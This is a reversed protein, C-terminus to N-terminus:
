QLAEEGAEISSNVNMEDGFLEDGPALTDDRDPPDFSRRSLSADRDVDGEDV